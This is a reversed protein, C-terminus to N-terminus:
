WPTRSFASAADASKEGEVVISAEARAMIKLLRYLPREDPWAKFQWGRNSGHGNSNEM